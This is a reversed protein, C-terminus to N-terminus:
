RGHIKRISAIGERKPMDDAYLTWHFDLSGRDARVTSDYTYALWPDLDRCEGPFLVDDRLVVTAVDQVKKWAVDERTIPSSIVELVTYDGPVEKQIPSVMTYSTVVRMPFGFELQFHHIFTLGHNTIQPHLSFYPKSKYEGRDVAVFEVRADAVKRRNMVDRIEHDRMELCETGYRRHYKLTSAQHATDSQPIEVVYAVEDPDDLKVPYIRLGVIHPEINGNIVQTLWDISYNASSVPDLKEPKMKDQQSVAIGYIITGGSANAMASIDKSIEKKKGDTQQLADAAKYELDQGEEIGNDILSQLKARNWVETM